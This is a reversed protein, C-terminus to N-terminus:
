EIVRFKKINILDRMDLNSENILKNNLMVRYIRKASQLLRNDSFIYVNEEKSFMDVEKYIRNLRARSINYRKVLYDDSELLNLAKFYGNILKKLRPDDAKVLSKKVVLVDLIMNPIMSSDFISHAGKDMIKSKIPEFTIIADVKKDNYAKFHGNYEVSVPNIDKLKLNAKKLVQSLMLAGVANSEYGIRKNKIDSISKIEKNAVLADAGMSSDIVLVVEIDKRYSYLTIAEDLTMAAGDLLDNRFLRQVESASPLEHIDIAGGFLNNRKAITLTQFGIWDIFAIKLPEKEVKNNCGQSFIFVSVLLFINLIKM